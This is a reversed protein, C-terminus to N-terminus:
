KSLVSKLLMLFRLGVQSAAGGEGIDKWLKSFAEKEASDLGLNKALAELHAVSAKGSKINQIIQDVNKAAAESDSMRKKAESLANASWFPKEAGAKEIRLQGEDTAQYASTTQAQVNEAQRQKLQKEARLVETEAESKDLQRTMLEREVGKLAGSVGSSVSDVMTATSGVPTSAGGNTYALMPNLGAAKLDKVSRQYSTNSMREQFNMQSQSMAANASNAREGGLFALGGGIISAAAMDDIGFM